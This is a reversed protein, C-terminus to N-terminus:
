NAQSLAQITSFLQKPCKEGMVEHYAVLFLHEGLIKYIKGLQRVTSGHKETDYVDEFINL